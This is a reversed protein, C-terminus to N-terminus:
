TPKVFFYMSPTAGINTGTGTFKFKHNGATSIALDSHYHGTSDKTATPTTVTGAGDTWSVTVTDPDVSTGASNTFIVSVRVVDGIDYPQGSSM